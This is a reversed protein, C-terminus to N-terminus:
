EAKETYCGVWVDASRCLKCVLVVQHCRGPQVAFGFWWNWHLDGVLAAVRCALGMYRVRVGCAGSMGELSTRSM